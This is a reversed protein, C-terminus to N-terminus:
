SFAPCPVGALGLIMEPHLVVDGLTAATVSITSATNNGQVTLSFYAFTAGVIAVLLTAIGVVSLFISQGRNNEM